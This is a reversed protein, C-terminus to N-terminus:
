KIAIGVRCWSEDGDANDSAEVAQMAITAGAAIDTTSGTTTSCQSAAEGITCTIAPTTGAAASRLTFVITEAAGLTADTTCYFGTVKFASAALIPADATAETADDLADCAAGGQSLDAGNGGFAGTSPGFYITGNEDNEGCLIVSDTFADLEDEDVANEAIEASDVSDTALETADIAGSGVDGVDADVWASGNCQCVHVTSGGGTTCDTESAADETRARMGEHAVDCTPFETNIDLIPPLTNLNPQAGAPAAVLIALAALRAFRM